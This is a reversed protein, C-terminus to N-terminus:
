PAHRAVSRRDVDARPMEVLHLASSSPINCDIQVLRRPRQKITIAMLRPPLESGTSDFLLVVVIGTLPMPHWPAADRLPSV